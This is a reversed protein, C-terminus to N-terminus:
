KKQFCLSSWIDDITQREFRIGMNTQESYIQFLKEVDAKTIYSAPTIRSGLSSSKREYFKLLKENTKTINVCIKGQINILSFGQHVHGWSWRKLDLDYDLYDSIQEIFKPNQNKIDDYNLILINDRFSNMWVDLHRDYYGMDIIHTVVKKNADESFMGGSHTIRGFKIHHFYASIAREVPNKLIVIIKTKSGLTQFVQSPIKSIRKSFKANSSWNYFYAPTTEGYYRYKKITSFNQFYEALETENFQKGRFFNLEKNESIWFEYQKKLKEHLWTTGCKQAGIILLNCKNAREIAM